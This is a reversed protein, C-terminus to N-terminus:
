IAQTSSQQQAQLQQELVAVEQLLAQIQLQATSSVQVTPSSTATGSATIKNAAAITLPGFYGSVPSIGQRAQFVKVANMTLLYFNGTIPGSYLGQATLFEQLESVQTNNQLGYSLNESFVQAHASFIGSFIFVAAAPLVLLYKIKM